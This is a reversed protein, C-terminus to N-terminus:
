ARPPRELLSRFGPSPWVGIEVVPTGRRAAGEEGGQSAVAWQDVVIRVVVPAPALPAAPVRNGCNPGRCPAIPLPPHDGHSPRAAHTSTDSQLAEGSFRPSTIKVYDGCGAFLTASGGLLWAGVALAAFLAFRVTARLSGFGAFFSFM